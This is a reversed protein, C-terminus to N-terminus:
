DGRSPLILRVSVRRLEANPANFEGADVQTSRTILTPDIGQALLSQVAIDARREALHMNAAPSGTGDTRGVVEIRLRTGLAEADDVLRRVTVAHDRLRGADQERLIVGSAFLFQADAAKAVDEQLRRRLQLQPQPQSEPQTASQPLLDAAPALGDLDIALGLNAVAAKQRVSDIWEQPATGSLIMNGNSQSVSVSEPADIAKRARLFVIEPDLSQYPRLDAVVQNSTLGAGAVIADVPEALPDRLGHVIFSDGDRDIDSVYLGPTTELATVLAQQQKRVQWSNFAFYTLAAVILLLGVILPVSSRRKGPDRAQMAEFQLCEVLEEEVGPLTSTDGAYDRIRDGYRFHIRELIASLDARLSRPPVGRIVCVLLAHPGHVAWLTFEGMDATELRGSRDPSFSEKIFDQIATFMASVANSDKIRAADHHVHGVLLGNERSILYAQEVRYLMTRQVVYEGFPVGARWADFRWQLGKASLSHEITENIQQAFSRLANMIAKRIAPGMVPYLADAYEKPEDRISEQLCQSVPARLTAVLEQGQRHSLRVAEPLVDAVDVARTEPKQVRETISDLVQKEAGFLLNKLEELDNM